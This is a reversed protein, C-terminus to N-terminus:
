LFFKLTTSDPRLIVSVKKLARGENKIIVVVCSVLYNETCTQLITHNMCAPRQSIKPFRLVRAGPLHKKGKRFAGLAHIESDEM